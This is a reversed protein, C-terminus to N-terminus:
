TLSTKAPTRLAALKDGLSRPPRTLELAGLKRQRKITGATMEPSIGLSTLTEAVQEMEAARRIGHVLMRDLNYNAKDEWEAGLSALVEDLVGAADAALVCEATLAEMGKVMVSRIMKISSARGIEEGAPRLNSFGLAKLATEARAAEPGSLLLPTALGKEVPAMVAVDCYQGDVLEIAQAAARKTDPAVSNLDCFIAGPELHQAATRAVILAQDATVVSIILSAGSLAAALSAEGRVDLRRYDALKADARAPLTTKIDFARAHGKWAVDGAFSQAAEGFGIFTVDIAM